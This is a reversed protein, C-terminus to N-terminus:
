FTYIVREPWGAVRLHVTDSLAGYSTCSGAALAALIGVAGMCGNRPAGLAQLWRAGAGCRLECYRFLRSGRRRGIVGSSTEM